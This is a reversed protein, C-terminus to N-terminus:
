LKSNTFHLAKLTQMPIDISNQNPLKKFDRLYCKKSMCHHRWSVAASSAATRGNNVYWSYSCGATYQKYATYSRHGSHSSDSDTEFKHKYKQVRSDATVTSDTRSNALETQTLWRWCQGLWQATWCICTALRCFFHVATHEYISCGSSDQVSVCCLNQYLLQEFATHLLNEDLNILDAAILSVKNRNFICLINSWRCLVNAKRYFFAIDVYSM